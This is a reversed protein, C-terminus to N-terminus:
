QGRHGQFLAVLRARLAPLFTFYVVPDLAMNVNTSLITLDGLPSFLLVPIIDLTSLLFFVNAFTTCLIFQITSQNSDPFLTKTSERM